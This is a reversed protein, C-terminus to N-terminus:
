WSKTRLYPNSSKLSSTNAPPARPVPRASQCSPSTRMMSPNMMLPEARKTPHNEPTALCACFPTRCNPLSTLYTTDFGPLESQFLRKLLEGDSDEGLSTGLLAVKAGWKWLAIASNAAEGGIMRKEELIPEYTGLEPLRAMRWMLDLALTGFVVVDYVNSM